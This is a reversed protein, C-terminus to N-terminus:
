MLIKRFEGIPPEPCIEIDLELLWKHDEEMICDNSPPNELHRIIWYFYMANGPATAKQHGLEGQIM